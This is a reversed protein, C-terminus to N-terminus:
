VLSKHIITLRFVDFSTNQKEQQFYYGTAQTFTRSLRDAAETFTDGSRRILTVTWREERSTGYNTQCIRGYSPVRDIICELGDAVITNEPNGVSIAPRQYGNPYTYTGLLDSLRDSIIAKIDTPKVAMSLFYSSGM